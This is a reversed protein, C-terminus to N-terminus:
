IGAECYSQNCPGSRAGTILKRKLELRQEQTLALVLPIGYEYGTGAGPNRADIAHNVSGLMIDFPELLFEESNLDLILNFPDTFISYVSM